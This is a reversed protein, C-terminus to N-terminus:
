IHKIKYSDNSLKILAEALYKRHCQDINSEFCTLAIRQKNKLLDLLYKQIDIAQPLIKSRYHEFLLNYDNQCNLERRKDSDIGLEPFHIYEINISNCITKLQSKSFGYKMSLPNKRVDCLVKVDNIILKNIYEEVSIGEYGITFLYTSFNTPRAHSITDFEDKNLIKEAITSNIAYFPFKIYTYKILDTQSKDNHQMKVALLAKRDFDKLSSLYNEKDIKIWNNEENIVQGYKTLSKLDSNAQFSFCGFKYPIFHYEPNQQIRSFLLLLKQLRLKELNNDFLQLLSLLIKRRYFM